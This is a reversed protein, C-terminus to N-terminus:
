TDLNVGQLVYDKSRMKQDFAMIPDTMLNIILISFIWCIFRNEESLTKVTNKLAQVAPTWLVIEVQVFM